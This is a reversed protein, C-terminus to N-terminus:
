PSLPKNIKNKEFLWIRHQGFYTTSTKLFKLGDEKGWKIIQNKSHFKAIPTFFQDAILQITEERTRKEGYYFETFKKVSGTLLNSVEDPRKNKFLRKAIKYVFPYFHYKTYLLVLLKGGPKTVRACEKFGKRTDPTHHLVGICVVIDFYNDPFDIELADGLKVKIEPYHKKVYDISTKSIDIAYVDAGAESLIKSITGQGCGVDLIKKGKLKSFDLHKSLHSKLYAKRKESGDPYNYRNYFDKVKSSSNDEMKLLVVSM